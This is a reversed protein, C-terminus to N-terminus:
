EGPPLVYVEIQEDRGRIPMAGLPQLSLSKLRQQTAQSILLPYEVEKTLSELRSAVNVTDGIVSFELHGDTGLCGAVISGSHLGIGIPLPCRHQVET